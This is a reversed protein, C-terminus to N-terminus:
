LGALVKEKAKQFEADTLAGEDRLAKLRRLQGALDPVGPAPAFGPAPMGRNLGAAPADSQGPLSATVPRDYLDALESFRGFSEVRGAVLRIVYTRDRVGPDSDLDYVLYEVNAQASTSDPTGMIALTEPRTMGIRMANLKASGYAGTPIENEAAHIYSPPSLSVGSSLCGVLLLGALPAV